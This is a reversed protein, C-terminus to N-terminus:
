SILKEMFREQNKSFGFGGAIKLVFLIYPSVPIREVM